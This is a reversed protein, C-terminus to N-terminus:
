RVCTSISRASIRLARILEGDSWSGIAQPTINKSYVQFSGDPEGFFEGGGGESGAVLQGGYKTFDRVTHCPVRGTVHNALYQGRTMKEPTAQITVSEAPAVSPYKAYLYAVGACAVVVVVVLLFVIKFLLRM